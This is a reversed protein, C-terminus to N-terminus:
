WPRKKSWDRLLKFNRRHRNIEGIKQVTKYVVNEELLNYETSLPDWGPDYDLTLVQNLEYPEDRVCVRKNILVDEVHELQLTEEFFKEEARLNNYFM